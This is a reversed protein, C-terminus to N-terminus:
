VVLQLRVFELLSYIETTMPHSIDGVVFEHVVGGLEIWSCGPIKRMDRQRMIMRVRNVNDWSLTSAYINSLLVYSSSDCFGGQISAEAVRQGMILDGHNRCASLLSRWIIDNPLMPMEEIMKWADELRGARGAHSCANLVGIFTIDDPKLLLNDMAHFLELALEGYGHIALGGIIANWHDVTNGSAEFVLLADELQGCKAYMDILAVGLKGHLPFHNRKIYEHVAIGDRIRGLESIASLVTAITTADPALNAQTRMNHFLNLAEAFSGNKVYSALMINWTILDREPMEDFLQRALNIQGAEMYGAILNAWSIVDKEPMIEFLLAAKEMRGLKVYGDIMLNWSVLDREPMQEFLEWADDIGGSCTTYCSIITNWTVLDRDRDEMSRFLDRAADKRGNMAYGHIMSNWSVSDRQPMWDFVRRALECHGCRSYFGILCNHLYLEAALNSKLVVAHVQLGIPLSPDEYGAKLVLSVSFRDATIGAALMLVFSLAAAPPDTSSKIIANWLFPNDRSHIPISSFFIRRALLRLPPEPSSCLRLILGAAAPPSHLLGATIFRAHLQNTDRLTRCKPLTNSLPSPDAPPHSGACALM